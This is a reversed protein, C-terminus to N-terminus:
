ERTMQLGELLLRIHKLFDMQNEDSQNFTMLYERLHTLLM